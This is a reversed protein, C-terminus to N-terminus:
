YSFYGHFCLILVRKWKTKNATPTFINQINENKKNGILTFINQINEDTKNAILNFLNQIHFYIATSKFPNSILTEEINQSTHNLTQEFVFHAYPPLNSSFIEGHTQTKELYAYLLVQEFDPPDGDWDWELFTVSYAIVSPM